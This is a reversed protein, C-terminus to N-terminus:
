MPLPNKATLARAFRRCHFAFDLWQHVLCLQRSGALALGARTFSPALGTNSDHCAISWSSAYVVLTRPAPNLWSIAIDKGRAVTLGHREMGLLYRSGDGRVSVGEQEEILGM